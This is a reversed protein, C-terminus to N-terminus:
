IANKGNILVSEHNDDILVLGSCVGSLKDRLMSLDKRFKGDLKICHPRYFRYSILKHQPDISDLVIDAYSQRAATYVAVVCIQSIVELFDFLYPRFEIYLPEGQDQIAILSGM